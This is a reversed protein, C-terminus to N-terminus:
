MAETSNQVVFDFCVEAAAGDDCRDDSCLLMEDDNGFHFGGRALLRQSASGNSQQPTESEDDDTLGRRLMGSVRRCLRHRITPLKAMTAPSICRRLELDQTPNCLVLDSSEVAVDGARADHSDEGGRRQHALGSLISLHAEECRTENAIMGDFASVSSLVDDPQGRSQLHPRVTSNAFGSTLSGSPTLLSAGGADRQSTSVGGHSNHTGVSSLLVDDGCMTVSRANQSRRAEVSTSSTRRSWQVARSRSSSCSFDSCGLVTVLADSCSGSDANGFPNFPVLDADDSVARMHGPSPAPTNRESDIVALSTPSTDAFTARKGGAPDCVAGPGLADVTRSSHRIGRHSPRRRKSDSLAAATHVDSSVGVGTEVDGGDFRVPRRVASAAAQQSTSVGM